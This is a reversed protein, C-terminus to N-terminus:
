EDNTPLRAMTTQRTLKAGTWPVSPLPHILSANGTDQQHRGHGPRLQCASLDPLSTAQPCPRSIRVVVLGDDLDRQVARDARADDDVLVQSTRATFAMEAM